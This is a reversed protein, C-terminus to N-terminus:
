CPASSRPPSKNIRRFLRQYDIKGDPRGIESTAADALRSVLEPVVDKTLAARADACLLACVEGVKVDFDDDGNGVESWFHRSALTV